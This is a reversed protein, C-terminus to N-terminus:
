LIAPATFVELAKIALLSPNSNPIFNYFIIMKVSVSFDTDTKETRNQMIEISHYLYIFFM